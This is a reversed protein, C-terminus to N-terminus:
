AFFRIWELAESDLSIGSRKVGDLLRYFGERDGLSYCHAAYAKFCELSDTSREKVIALWENTKEENGINQFNQVLTTVHSDLLKEPATGYLMWAAQDFLFLFRRLEIGVFLGSDIVEVLYNIYTVQNDETPNKEMQQRLEMERSKYRASTESVFTAAYHSVETDESSVAGKINDIMQVYDDQKLVDILSQRRDKKNSMLLAEELAVSNLSKDVDTDQILKMRNKSFSLEDYLLERQQNHFIILYALYSIGVVALGVIPVVLFFLFVILGKKVEKKRLQFLLYIVAVILNLLLLIIIILLDRNM